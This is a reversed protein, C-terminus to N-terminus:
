VKLQKMVIGRLRWGQHLQVEQWIPREISFSQTAIGMELGCRGQSKGELFKKWTCVRALEERAERRQDIKDSSLGDSEEKV